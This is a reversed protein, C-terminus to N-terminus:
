TQLNNYRKITLVDNYAKTPLPYRNGVEACSSSVDRQWKVLDLLHNVDSVQKITSQLASVELTRSCPHSVKVHFLILNV